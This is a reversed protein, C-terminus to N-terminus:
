QAPPAPAAQPRIVAWGIRLLPLRGEISRPFGRPVEVVLDPFSAKIEAPPTGPTDTALWVVVAGKARADAVSVWRSRVPAEILLSPRTRRELAVLAAIEPDGAVITLPRGTRREFTDAFFRGMEQAPYLVKFDVALTWPLLLLAVAMALPPGVLLGVWAMSLLRQRYLPIQDGALVIVVLGSCVVVPGVTALSWHQGLLAGAGTAAFLPALAFFYIMSKALPQMASRNVTPLRTGRPLRWASALTAFLVIGVHAVALYWLIRLWEGVATRLHIAFLRALGPKWVDDAHVLWALYPAAVLIAVFTCLWPDISRFAARGQVSAAAFVALVIFFIWGLSTTLLLLGMSVALAIWYESRGEGVARWFHLLVMMWIPMALIAPGFEPTPVSMAAVGIMLLVALVAQATGVTSRGLAFIGMLTAVVCAQSLLYVGAMGGLRYAMEALWFALPPGRDSGLQFEHGVALVIPLEGPPSSYFLTPLVTWLAAQSLAATWFMLRPHARLSELILSVYLM